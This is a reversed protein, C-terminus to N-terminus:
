LHWEKGNKSPYFAHTAQKNVIQENSVPLGYILGKKALYLCHIIQCTKIVLNYMM